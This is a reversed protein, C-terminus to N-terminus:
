DMSQAVAEKHLAQFREEALYGQVDPRGLVELALKPDSTVVNRMFSFFEDRQGVLALCNACQLLVQRNYPDSELFRRYALAAPAFRGLSQLKQGYLLWVQPKADPEAIALQLATLQSEDAVTARSRRAALPFAGLALVTLLTVIAPLRSHYVM